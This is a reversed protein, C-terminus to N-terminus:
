GLTSQGLFVSLVTETVVLAVNGILVVLPRWQSM